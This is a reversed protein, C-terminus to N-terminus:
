PEEMRSSPRKSTPPAADVQPGTSDDPQPTDPDLTFLTRYAGGIEMASTRGVLTASPRKSGFHASYWGAPPSVDGSVIRWSLRRDLTVTANGTAAGDDRAWVLDAHVGDAALDVRVDPGLPLTIAMDHARDSEHGPGIEPEPGSQGGDGQRPAPDLRDLLEITRAVRDLTVTRRHLLGLGAYGDHIATATAIPGGDLGAQSELSSEAKRTWLFPGAMESQDLGGIVVTAHAATSRFHDRWEPEGHYCYTGPDAVVEVGGARIEVALADAHAHAATSLFGHPGHDFVCWLEADPPADPDIDRLITLGADPFQSPRQSPRGPADLRPDNGNRSAWEVCAGLVSTRVDSVGPAPMSWWPAQHCVVSATRLLSRWRDYGIPDLLLGHADDSDGQRHPHGRGDVVAQLADFAAVVPEALEGALRHGTLVAEVWAAVVMELVFGHYDSALERNLGDPFTQLRVERALLDAAENRWDETEEFLPFASAGIFRGCAEAIVHNNASSGHSGLAALWQQHRGLQEVFSHDDEFLAPAGSWRDLLRRIWTWAILRLGLEIGSTWHIGTLFPTSRWYHRLEADVREAYRDDGSVAYAAALLTLHHHRAPEWVFKVNGVEDEHRHNIDFCYRDAPASTRNVFDLHYDISETMDTRPRGFMTWRGALLEDAEALLAAISPQPIRAGLEDPVLPATREPSARRPPRQPPRHKWARRRGVDQVRGAIEAPGMSALRRLYWKPDM